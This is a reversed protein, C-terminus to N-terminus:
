VIEKEELIIMNESLLECAFGINVATETFWDLEVGAPLGGAQLGVGGVKGM